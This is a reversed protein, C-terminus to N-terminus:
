LSESSSDSSSVADSLSEGTKSSEFWSSDCSRNAGEDLIAFCRRDFPDPPDVEPINAGFKLGKPLRRDQIRLWYLIESLSAHMDGKGYTHLRGRTPVTHARRHPRTSSAFAEGASPLDPSQPKGEQRREDERSYGTATHRQSLLHKMQMHRQQAKLKRM